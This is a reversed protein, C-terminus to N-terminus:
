CCCNLTKWYGAQKKIFFREETGIFLYIFCEVKAKKQLVPSFLCGMLSKPCLWYRGKEGTTELVVCRKLHPSRLMLMSWHHTNGAVRLKYNVKTPKVQLKSLDLNCSVSLPPAAHDLCAADHLLSIPRHTWISVYMIPYLLFSFLEEYGQYKLFPLHHWLSSSASYLNMVGAAQETLEQSLAAKLYFGASTKGSEPTSKICNPKYFGM